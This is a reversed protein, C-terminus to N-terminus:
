AARTQLIGEVAQLFTDSVLKPDSLCGSAMAGDRLLVLHRGADEAPTGGTRALLGTVTDLFWQRH